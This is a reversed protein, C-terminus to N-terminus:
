ALLQSNKRREGENRGHKKSPHNWEAHARKECAKLEESYKAMKTILLSWTYRPTNIVCASVAFSAHLQSIYLVTFHLFQVIDTQPVYTRTIVCCLANFTPSVTRWYGMTALAKMPKLRAMEPTATV